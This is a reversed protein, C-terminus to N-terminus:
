KDLLICLSTNIPHDLDSGSFRNRVRRPFAESQKIANFRPTETGRFGSIGGWKKVAYAPMDTLYDSLFREAARGPRLFAPAGAPDISAPNCGESKLTASVLDVRFRAERVPFQKSHLFM